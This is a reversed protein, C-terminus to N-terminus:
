GTGVKKRRIINVPQRAIPGTMEDRMIVPM